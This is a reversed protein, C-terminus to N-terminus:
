DDSKNRGFLNRAISANDTKGDKNDPKGKKTINVKGGGTGKSLKEARERMEDVTDGTVFEALEDSLKFESVIKVKETGLEATKVKSTLDGITVDKEKLKDEYSKTLDDVQAAKQAIPEHQKRLRDLRSEVIGDLESQTHLNDSVEVYDDGDKTFYKTM